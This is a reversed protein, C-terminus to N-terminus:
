RNASAEITALHDTFSFQPIWGTALVKTIDLRLPHALQETAYRSRGEIRAFELVSSAALAFTSPLHVLKVSLRHAALLALIMEDRDYWSADSINYAGSSWDLAAVSALALNGAHTLSLPGGPGPLLLRGNRVAALLRPELHPDGTGYVARPRLVVAGADLALKEADAKTAAYLSGQTIYPSTETVPEDRHAYVSASSIMLTPVGVALVEATGTVNVLRFLAESGRDGVQAAAHIVRDLKVSPVGIGARWPVHAYGATPTRGITVVEHGAQTLGALIHRGCFGTAGTLGVRM